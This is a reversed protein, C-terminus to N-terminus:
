ICVEFFERAEKVIEKFRKSLYITVELLRMKDEIDEAMDSCETIITRAEFVFYNRLNESKKDHIWTFGNFFEWKGDRYRFITKYQQHLIYALNSTNKTASRWIKYKDAIATTTAAMIVYHPM